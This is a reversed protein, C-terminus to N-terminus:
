LICDMWNTENEFLCLIFLIFLRNEQGNLFLEGQASDEQSLIDWQNFLNM